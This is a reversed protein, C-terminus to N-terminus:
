CVSEFACSTLSCIFKQLFLLSRWVPRSFLHHKELLFDECSASIFTCDGGDFFFQLSLPLRLDAPIVLEEWCKSRNAFASLMLPAMVSMAALYSDEYPGAAGAMLCILKKFSSTASVSSIAFFWVETISVSELFVLDPDSRNTSYFRKVIRPPFFRAM